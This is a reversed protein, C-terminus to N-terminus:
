KSLGGLAGFTATNMLPSSTPAALSKTCSQTAHNAALAM